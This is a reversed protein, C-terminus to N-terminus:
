DIKTGIGRFESYVTVGSYRYDCKIGGIRAITFNGQITLSDQFSQAPISLTNPKANAELTDSYAGNEYRWFFKVKSRNTSQIRIDLTKIPQAIWEGFVNLSDRIEWRGEFPDSDYRCSGDDTEAKEKYNAAFADTCGERNCASFTVILCIFLFQVAYKM